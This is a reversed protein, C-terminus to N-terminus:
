CSTHWYATLDSLGLRGDDRLVRSFEGAAAHKDQFTCFACACIVADFSATAFPLHEADAQEFSVNDELGAGATRRTAEEIGNTGYDVGIVRYGFREAIFVASRGTGSAVDLVRDGPRLDLLKGLRETLNLGGPHLFEGLLLNAWDSGYVAACCSKIDDGAPRVKPIM